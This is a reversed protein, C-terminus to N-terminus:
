DSYVIVDQGVAVYRSNGYAVGWLDEQTPSTEVTWSIGNSSTLIDGYLGVAAYHSNGYTVDFLHDHYGWRRQVWTNGTTSTMIRGHQSVVVFFSICDSTIGYLYLNYLPTSKRAWYTGDYTGKLLVGNAGVAVFVGGDIGSCCRVDYLRNTVGSTQQTWSVCNPSTYIAGGDGVVVYKNNGYCLGRFHTTTGSQRRVWYIGNSSTRVTGNYGVAVFLGGGYTVGRLHASTRSNRTTWDIGNSSTKILGSDGVAVFLNNGFAVDWHFGENNQTVVSWTEGNVEGVLLFFSFLTMVMTTFLNKKSM